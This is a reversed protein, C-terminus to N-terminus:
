LGKRKLYEEPSENPKRESTPKAKTGKSLSKLIQQPTKVFQGASKGLYDPSDPDLLQSPTKGAKKKAEYEQLFFNLFKLYQEEGEPDRVGMLPNAKVLQQQVSKLFQDKLDSEIKGQVTKRGSVESRLQSLDEMTLGRGFFGNLESEDRIKRPDSDPAHIRNFLDIKVSPDTAIKETANRKIDGILQKKQEYTLDGNDLIRNEINATNGRIVDTYIESQVSEQREKIIREHESRERAAKSERAGVAMEAERYLQHKADGSLLTDFAGTNISEKAYEPDLKIWGRVSSEALAMRTKNKLEEATARPLLGTSVLSEVGTDHLDFADQLGSPDNLLASSLSNAMSLYDEKAKIGTLQSQGALTTQAFQLKLNTSLQRVHEQGVRTEAGEEITSLHDALGENFRESLTRDGPDAKSIQEQWIKTFDAHAKALKANLDSIEARENNKQVIDAANMIAGGAREISAGINAGFTDANARPGQVIGPVEASPRYEKINPM